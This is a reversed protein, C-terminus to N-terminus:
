LRLVPFRSPSKLQKTPKQGLRLLRLACDHGLRQDARGVRAHRHYRVHRGEECPAQGPAGEEDFEFRAGWRVIGM